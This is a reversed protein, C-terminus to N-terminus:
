YLGMNRAVSWPSWDRRLYMNAAVKINSEPNNWAWNMSGNIQFLGCSPYGTIKADEWNIANANGGSEAMMVRYANDWQSRPFYKSILSYLKKNEVRLPPLQVNQKVVKPKPKPKPFQAKASKINFDALKKCRLNLDQSIINQKQASKAEAVRVMMKFLFVM